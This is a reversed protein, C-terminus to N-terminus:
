GFPAIEGELKSLRQRAAENTQRVDSAREEKQKRVADGCESVCVYACACPSMEWRILYHIIKDQYIPAQLM